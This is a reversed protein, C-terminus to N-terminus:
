RMSIFQIPLPGGLKGRVVVSLPFPLHILSLAPLLVRPITPVNSSAYVTRVAGRHTIRGGARGVIDYTM